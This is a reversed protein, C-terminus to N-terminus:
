SQTQYIGLGFFNPFFVDADKSKDCFSFSKQATRHINYFNNWVKSIFHKDLKYKKAKFESSYPQPGCMVQILSWSYVLLFINTVMKNLFIEFM